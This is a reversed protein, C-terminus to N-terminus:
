MCCRRTSRRCTISSIHNIPLYTGGGTQPPHRVYTYYYFFYYCYCVIIFLYYSYKNIPRGRWHSFKQQCVFLYIAAVLSCALVREHSQNISQNISERAKIFKLPFFKNYCCSVRRGSTTTLILWQRRSCRRAGTM